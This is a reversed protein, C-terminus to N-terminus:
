RLSAVTVVAAGAFRAPSPGGAWRSSFRQASAPDGAALLESPLEAKPKPRTAAVKVRNLVARAPTAARAFLARVSGREPTEVLPSAARAPEARGLVEDALRLPLSIADPDASAVLSVPRVPPTPAETSALAVASTFEEPRRPPLPAFALAAPITRAQGGDAGDAERLPPGAKAPAFAATTEPAFALATRPLAGDGRRAAAVQVARPAPKPARAQAVDEESEARDAESGGFLKAFFSKFGGGIDASAVQTHGHVTTGRALLEARAQEYGALPKGDAPLHVTKGDPFLRALQDRSMRPWARVSGVDIHVFAGAYYGVGGNQLRMAAARVRDVSIDPIHMDMAKGAMHQSQDSVRRSRARLAANTQPSRYASIVQIPESAGVSRYVEWVADFLRPDMRTKQDTRWDRLFWNLKDLAASDYRGDRRFTIHISEQTHTHYLPITRTDGNAVADQTGSTGVLWAALTALIGASWRLGRLSM